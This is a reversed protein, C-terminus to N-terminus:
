LKGDSSPTTENMRAKDSETAIREVMKLQNLRACQAKYEDFTKCMGSVVQEAIAEYEKSLRALLDSTTLV